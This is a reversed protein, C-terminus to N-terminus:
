QTAPRRNRSGREGEAGGEIPLGDANLEVAGAVRPQGNADDRPAPSPKRGGQPASRGGRQGQGAKNDRIRQMMEQRAAKAAAAMVDRGPPKGAGGWLTQRGMAIPEAKEGEEPGFGELMQVSLNQHHLSVYYLESQLQELIAAANPQAPVVYINRPLATPLKGAEYAPPRQNSDLGRM